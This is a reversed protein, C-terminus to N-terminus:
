KDELATDTDARKIAMMVSQVIGLALISWQPAGDLLEPSINSWDLGLIAAWIGGFLGAWRVTSSKRGHLLLKMFTSM